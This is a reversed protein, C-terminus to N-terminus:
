QKGGGAAMTDTLAAQLAFETFHGARQLTAAAGAPAKVPSAMSAPTAGSGLETTMGQMDLAAFSRGRFAQEGNLRRIYVPLLAPDTLRGRISFGSPGISFGTLWVGELKQRSFGRMVEAVGGGGQNSLQEALKLVEGRQRVASELRAIDSELATNPVRAALATQAAQVERQVQELRAQAVLQGQKSSYASYRAYAYSVVVLALAVGAAIAVVPFAAWDRQPRLAPNVLNIEQTM